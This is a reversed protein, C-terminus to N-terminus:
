LSHKIVVADDAEQGEAVVAGWTKVLHERLAKLHKPKPKDARNGKYVATVAVDHRFNNGGTLHLRWGDYFRDGHDAGLIVDAIM